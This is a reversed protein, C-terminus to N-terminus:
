EESVKILLKRHNEREDFREPAQQVAEATFPYEKFINIKFVGKSILDFVGTSYHYAEEPTVMYNGM